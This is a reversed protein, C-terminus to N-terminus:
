SLIWNAIRSLFLRFLCNKVIGGKAYASIIVAELDKIKEFKDIIKGIHKENYSLDADITIM